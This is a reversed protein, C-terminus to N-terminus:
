KKIFYVEDNDINDDNIYVSEKSNNHCCLYDGDVNEVFINGVWNNKNFFIMLRNIITRPDQDVEGYIEIRTKVNGILYRYTCICKVTDDIAISEANEYFFDDNFIAIEHENLDFFNILFNLILDDTLKEDFFISM